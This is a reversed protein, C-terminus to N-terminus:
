IFEKDEEVGFYPGSKHELVETDDELIVYNHGAGFSFSTDGERLIIEKLITDDIDYFICKVMGALVHWSEQAIMNLTRTHRRHKHPRFTTGKNLKLAACQIFNDPLILDERGEKIDSQYFVMHLLLKPDIKSYIYKTM